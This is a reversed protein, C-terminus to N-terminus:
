RRGREKHRRENIESLKRYQVPTLAQHMRYLLLTRGKSAQSRVAEMRDLQQALVAEDATNERILRDTEAELTDLQKRLERLAPFNTTWIKEIKAIQRPSLDLEKQVAADRWWLTRREQNGQSQGAESHGKDKPQEQGQVPGPGAAVVAALCLGALARTAFQM